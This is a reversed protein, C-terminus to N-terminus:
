PGLAGPLPGHPPPPKGRGGAMIRQHMKEYVRPVAVMVTPRSAQLDEALHDAGRAIWASGGAAIGVFLGNVREFVHAYPLFSLSEDEEGLDFVQLASHAMDVFCRHALMVGKPEGTTGSTYVLTALDDPRLAAARSEVEALAEPAAEAAVWAPLDAEMRVIKEMKLRGALDDAVFALDAGANAVIKQAVSALTTAYIPVSVAGAAQIAMDCYLWELRNGSMIVVRDGANVGESVLRAAVRLALDRM